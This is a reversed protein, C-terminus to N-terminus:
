SRERKALAELADRIAEARNEYSCRIVLWDLSELLDDNLRVAVQTTSM